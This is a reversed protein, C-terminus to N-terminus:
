LFLHTMVKRLECCSVSPLRAFFRILSLFLKTSLAAFPGSNSSGLAFRVFPCIHKCRLPEFCCHNLRQRLIGADEDFDAM